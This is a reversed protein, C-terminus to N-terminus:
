SIESGASDEFVGGLGREIDEYVSHAPGMISVRMSSALTSSKLVPM